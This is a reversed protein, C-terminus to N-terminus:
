RNILTRIRPPGDLPDALNRTTATMSRLDRRSRAKAFEMRGPRAARAVGLVLSAIMAAHLRQLAHDARRKMLDRRRRSWCCPGSSLRARGYAEPGAARPRVGSPPRTLLDGLQGDASRLDVGEPGLAISRTKAPAIACSAAPWGAACTRGHDLLVAEVCRRNHPARAQLDDAASCIISAPWPAM